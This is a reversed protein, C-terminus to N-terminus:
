KKKTISELLANYEDLDFEEDEKKENLEKKNVKTKSVKSTRNELYNIADLATTVKERKLSSAVKEVYHRDLRNDCNKLCYSILANIVGNTLGCNSSLWDFLKLDSTVPAMGDQRNQLFSKPSLNEMLDIESALKTRGSIKIYTKNQRSKRVITLYKAENIAREKFANLDIKSGVKKSEDFCESVLDSTIIMDLGYLTAIREIEDLENKSIAKELINHSLRLQTFFDEYSFETDVKLSNTDKLNENINTKFCEGDLNPKFVEKFKASVNKFDSLDINTKYQTALKQVRKEGLYNVLLGKFLVNDFFSKPSKPAHIVYKFQRLNNSDCTYTELLSTAELARRAFLFDSASIQMFDYLEKHAILEGDDNIHNVLTFYLIAAKYGIIPQYLRTVVDFNVDSILSAANVTFYDKGNPPLLLEEM